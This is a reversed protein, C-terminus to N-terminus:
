TFGLDRASSAARGQATVGLAPVTPKFSMVKEEQEGAPVCMLPLGAEGAEAGREM